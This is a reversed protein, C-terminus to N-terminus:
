LMQKKLTDPQSSLWIALYTCINKKFFMNGGRYNYIVSNKGRLGCPAAATWIPNQKGWFSYVGILSCRKKRRSKIRLQFYKLIYSSLFFSCALKIIIYSLLWCLFINNLYKRYELAKVNKWIFKFGKTMSPLDHYSNKNGTKLTQIVKLIMGM